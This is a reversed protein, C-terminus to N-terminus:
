AAKKREYRIADLVKEETTAYDEALRGLSDGAYFREAVIETPVGTGVLVPRGFSVLPNISIVQPEDEKSNKHIFPYLRMPTKDPNRDIRRLYTKLVERIALQGSKSVTILQGLHEIFLDVGDTKFHHDALPHESQFQTEIYALTDRVKYFPINEVKRIGKLVHVEILNIFSLMPFEDEPLNIVPASFRMEGNDIRYKRGRIWSRLTNVPIKIYESAQTIGYIPMERPDGGYIKRLKQDGLHENM